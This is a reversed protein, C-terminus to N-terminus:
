NIHPISGDDADIDRLVHEAHVVSVEERHAIGPDRRALGGRASLYPNRVAGVLDLPNLEDSRSRGEEAAEGIRIIASQDGGLVNISEVIGPTHFEM